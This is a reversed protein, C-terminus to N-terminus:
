EKAVIDIIAIPSGAFSGTGTSWRLYRSFSSVAIHQTTAPATTDVAVSTNPLDAWADEELVAAHQLRVVTNADTATGKRLVRVMAHLDSYAGFDLVAERGATINAALARGDLLRATQSAM